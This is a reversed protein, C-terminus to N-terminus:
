LRSAHSGTNAAPARAGQGAVVCRRRREGVPCERREFKFILLVRLGGNQFNARGHFLTSGLSSITVRTPSDLSPLEVWFLEAWWVVHEPLCIDAQVLRGLPSHPSLSFGQHGLKSDLHLLPVNDVLSCIETHQLHVYSKYQM